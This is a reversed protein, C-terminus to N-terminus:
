SYKSKQKLVENIARLGAVKACMYNSNAKRISHLHM